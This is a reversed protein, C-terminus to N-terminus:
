SSFYGEGDIFGNILTKISHFQQPAPDYFEFEAQMEENDESSWEEEEEINKKKIPKKSPAPMSQDYRIDEELEM